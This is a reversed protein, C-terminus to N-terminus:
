ARSAQSEWGEPNEVKVKVKVEVKVEVEVEVEVPRLGSFPLVNLDFRM